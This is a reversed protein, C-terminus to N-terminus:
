LHPPRLAAREGGDRTEVVDVFMHPVPIKRGNGRTDLQWRAPFNLTLRAAM